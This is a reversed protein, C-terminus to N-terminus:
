GVVALIDDLEQQTLVLYFDGEQTYITVSSENEDNFDIHDLERTWEFTDDEQPDTGPDVPPLITMNDEGTFCLIKM